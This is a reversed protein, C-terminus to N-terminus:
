IGYDLYWMEQDYEMDWIWETECDTQGELHESCEQPKGIKQWNKNTFPQCHCNITVHKNEKRKEERKNSQM